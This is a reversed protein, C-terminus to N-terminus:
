DGCIGKCIMIEVFFLLTYHQIVPYLSFIGLIQKHNQQPCEPHGQM